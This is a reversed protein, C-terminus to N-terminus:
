SAARTRRGTWFVANDLTRISVTAGAVAAGTDLRTVLVLTNEPSDKVTLGLNTVQVVSARVPPKSDQSARPIPAGEQIAAWALGTKAGGLAPGLDFGASAIV